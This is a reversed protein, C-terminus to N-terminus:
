YRFDFSGGDHFRYSHVFESIRALVAARVDQAFSLGPFPESSITSSM